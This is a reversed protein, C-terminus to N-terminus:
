GNFYSQSFHLLSLNIGLFTFLLNQLITLRGDVNHSEICRCILTARFHISLHIYADICSYILIFMVANPLMFRSLRLTRDHVIDLVLKVPGYTHFWTSPTVFAMYFLHLFTCIKDLVFCTTLRSLFFIHARHYTFTVSM